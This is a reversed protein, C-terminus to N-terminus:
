HNLHDTLFCQTTFTKSATQSINKCSFLRKQQNEALQHGPLSFYKQKKNIVLRASNLLKQLPIKKCKIGTRIIAGLYWSYGLWTEQNLWYFSTLALEKKTSKLVRILFFFEVKFLTITYRDYYRRMIFFSIM